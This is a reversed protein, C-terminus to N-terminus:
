RVNIVVKNSAVGRLSVSVLVDGANALENPLRLNV